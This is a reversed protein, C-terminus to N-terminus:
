AVVKNRGTNKAEYLKEDAAKVANELSDNNDISAAGISVTVNIYTNDETIFKFKSVKVRLSRLTKKFDTYSVSSPAILVFEEGGWRGVIIDENSYANLIKGINSLVLDGTTHGYTDNVKKFFDIDLIAVSYPKKSEISEKIINESIQNLAYRNYLKTLEDYDAKRSLEYEKRRSKSTYFLAFMTISFFSFLNNATFLVRRISKSIPYPSELIVAHTFISLLFYTLIIIGSFIFSRRHTKKLNNSSFAPLFYSTILAFSWNQFSLSWGLCIIALVMHLWIEIFTVLIYEDTHKYCRIIYSSYIIISIFNVLLMFKHGIIIYIVMLFLHCLLLFINVFFVTINVRGEPEHKNIWLDQLIRNM